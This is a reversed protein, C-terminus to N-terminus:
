NEAGAGFPDGKLALPKELSSFEQYSFGAAERLPGPGVDLASCNKMPSAARSPYLCMGGDHVYAALKTLLADDAIYLPPVLILKYRSLDADEPFIFDTGVNLDYFTKHLQRLVTGYAAKGSGSSWQPGSHTFSM